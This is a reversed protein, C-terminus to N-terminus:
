AKLWKFCPQIYGYWSNLMWYRGVEGLCHMLVIKRDSESSFDNNVWVAQNNKNM